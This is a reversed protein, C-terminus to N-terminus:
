GAGLGSLDRRCVVARMCVALDHPVVMNARAFLTSSVFIASLWFVLIVLFPAPISSGAQTFLQLRM